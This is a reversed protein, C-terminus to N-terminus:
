DYGKVLSIEDSDTQKGNDDILRVKIKAQTGKEIGTFLEQIIKESDVVYTGKSNPYEIQREGVVQADGFFLQAKYKKDPETIFEVILKFEQGSVLEITKSTDYEGNAYVSTIEVKPESEDAPQITPSTTEGTATGFGKEFGDFVIYFKKKEAGNKILELMDELGLQFSVSAGRDTGQSATNTIVDLKVEIPEEKGEILAKATVKGKASAIAEKAAAYGQGPSYDFPNMLAANSLYFSDEVFGLYVILGYYDLLLVRSPDSFGKGTKLGPNEQFIKAVAAKVSETIKPHRANSTEVLFVKDEKLPRVNQADIIEYLIETQTDNLKRYLLKLKITSKPYQLFGYVNQLQIPQGTILKGDNKIKAWLIPTATFNPWVFRGSTIGRFVVYDYPTTFFNPMTSDITIKRTGDHKEFDQIEKYTGLLAFREEEKESVQFALRYKDFYLIKPNAASNSYKDKTKEIGSLSGKVTIGKSPDNPSIYNITITGFSDLFNSYFGPLVGKLEITRSNYEIGDINEATTEVDDTKAQLVEIHKELEDSTAIERRMELAVRRFQSFPSSVIIKGKKPKLPNNKNFNEIVVLDKVAEDEAHRDKDLVLRYSLGYDPKEAQTVFPFDTEKINANAVAFKGAKINEFEQETFPKDKGLLFLDNLGELDLKPLQVKLQKGELSVGAKKEADLLDFMTEITNSPDGLLAQTFEGGFHVIATNLYDKFSSGASQMPNLTTKQLLLSYKEISDQAEKKTSIIVNSYESSKPKPDLVEAPNCTTHTSFVTGSIPQCGNSFNDFLLENERAEKVPFAKKEEDFQPTFGTYIFQQRIFIENLEQETKGKALFEPLQGSGPMQGTGKVYAYDPKKAEREKAASFYNNVDQPDSTPIRGVSLEIFQDDDTNGYFASDLVQEKSGELVSEENTFPIDEHSGVILLHKFPGVPKQPVTPTFNEKIKELIAQPSIKEEIPILGWGKKFALDTLFDNLEDNKQKFLIVGSENLNIKLAIPPPNRFGPLASTYEFQITTDITRPLPKKQAFYESFDANVEIEFPEFSGQKNQIKASIKGGEMEIAALDKITPKDPALAKELFSTGEMLEEQTYPLASPGTFTQQVQQIESLGFEIKPPWPNDSIFQDRDFLPDTKTILIFAFPSEQGGGKAVLHYYSDALFQSDKPNKCDWKLEFPKNEEFETLASSIEFEQAKAGSELLFIQGTVKKTSTVTILASDGKSPDCLEYEANSLIEKQNKDFIQVKLELALPTQETGTGTDGTGGVGGDTGGNTGTDKGGSFIKGLGKILSPGFFIGGLLLLLILMIPLVKSSM